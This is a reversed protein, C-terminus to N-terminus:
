RRNKRRRHRMLKGFERLKPSVDRDKACETLAVSGINM